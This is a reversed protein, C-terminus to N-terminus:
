PTESVQPEGGLRTRILRSVGAIGAVEGAVQDASEPSCVIKVQPGADITFFAPIGVRRMASIAQIVEMTAGNWYLIAPHSTMMTAHMKLCSQESVEALAAFDRAAIASRATDMDAPHTALWTDYFSSTLATRKMGESSSVSKAQESTVAVVVALPWHAAPALQRAFPDTDNVLEVFGGYVSRAASGSGRRALRAIDEPILGLAAVRNLGLALAAFGSASSALGAGTPFDNVSRVRFHDDLHHTRRVEELFLRVRAVADGSTQGNIAVDDEAADIIGVETRTVLDELGISLSGTAPRNGDGASKGWYKVLAVNACARVQVTRTM